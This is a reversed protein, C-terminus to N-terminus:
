LKKHMIIANESPNSYYKKRIRGVRFGHRQYFRVAKDNSERVELWIMGVSNQECEEFLKNIIAEGIGRGRLAKEVGINYIEASNELESEAGTGQLIQGILFGIVRVKESGSYHAKLCISEPHAIMKLYSDYPWSSLGSNEELAKVAEIDAEKLRAIILNGTM